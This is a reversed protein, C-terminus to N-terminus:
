SNKQASLHWQKCLQQYGHPKKPNTTARAIKMQSCLEVIIEKVEQRIVGFKYDGIKGPLKTVIAQSVWLPLSSIFIEKWKPELILEPSLTHLRHLFENFYEDFHQMNHLKMAVLTIATLDNKIQPFGIFNVTIGYILCGIRNNVPLSTTPDMYVTSDANMVQSNEWTTLLTPDKLTEAKM